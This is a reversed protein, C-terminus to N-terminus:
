DYTASIDPPESLRYPRGTEAKEDTPEDSQEEPNPMGILVVVIAEGVGAYSGPRPGFEGFMRELFNQVDSQDAM